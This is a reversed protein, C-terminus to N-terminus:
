SKRKRDKRSERVMAHFNEQVCELTEPIEDLGFVHGLIHMLAHACEGHVHEAEHPFGVEVLAERVSRLFVTRITQTKSHRPLREAYKELKELLVSCRQEQDVHLIRGRIMMAWCTRDNVVFM